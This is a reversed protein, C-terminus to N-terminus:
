SGGKGSKFDKLASEVSAHESIFPLIGTLDLIDKVARSLGVVKLKKELNMRIIMSIGSSNIYEVGDLDLVIGGVKGEFLNFVVDAIDQAQELVFEKGQLSIVIADQELRYEITKSAGAMNESECEPIPQIIRHTEDQM